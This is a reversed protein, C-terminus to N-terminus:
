LQNTNPNTPGLELFMLDAPNNKLSLHKWNFNQAHSLFKFVRNFVFTKLKWPPTEMWLLAIRSDTYLYVKVNALKLVEVTWVVKKPLLICAPLELRPATVTELSAM